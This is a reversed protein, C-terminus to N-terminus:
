STQSYTTSGNNEGVNLAVANFGNDVLALNATGSLGGFAFARGTVSSDFVLGMGGSSLTSGALAYQTILCLTGSTVTTAGTFSNSASLTLTGTGTKSLSGSGSIVGSYSQAIANAFVLAANDIINGSVAGNVSSGYGLQLTGGAITTIGGFTNSGTLTLTGAGTKTLNGGTSTLPTAWVVNQGNTDVAYQQNSATSFRASYDFQNVASYQLWGGNFLITGALGLPGSVGPCEPAGLNVAGGSLTVGGNLTNSGTLTLTGLGSKALPAGASKLAAAWTVNQGNTDVSYQQNNAASFRESYDFQNSASYQLCGGTLFIPGSAGLPGSAGPDEAAGLQLVGAAVTTSGAYTNSGYFTLKGNGVKTLSGAGTLTGSFSTNANNGGVTLAIPLAQSGQVLVVGSPGAIGGITFANGASSDDFTLTSNAITVTSNQAAFQNAIRLTGGSILAPGSYSNSGALTLTGTGTKSLSGGLSGLPATWTVDQGNTDINYHQNPATSFRASYDYQNVSSPQITGGNLVITGSLGLPGSTGPQEAVGL